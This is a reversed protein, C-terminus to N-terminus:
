PPESQDDVMVVALESKYPRLRTEKVHAIASTGPPELRLGARRRMERLGPCEEGGRHSEREGAGCETCHMSTCVDGSRHLVKVTVYGAGHYIDALFTLLRGDSAVRAHAIQGPNVLPTAYWKQDIPAALVDEDPYRTEDTMTYEIALQPAPAPEKGPLVKSAFEARTWGRETATPTYIVRDPRKVTSGCGGCWGSTISKALTGMTTGGRIKVTWHHDSVWVAVHDCAISSGNYESM